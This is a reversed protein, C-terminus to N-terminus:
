CITSFTCATRDSRAAGEVEASLRTLDKELRERALEVAREDADRAVTLPAGGVYYVRTFPAPLIFRDWSAFGHGHRPACAVPFLRAGTVQALRIAGVKARQRPGRPGDAAIALDYGERYAELMERASAVGGRTASGRAARIGYGRTARAIIEGDSHRSVQICIGAGHGRYGAQIMGLQAHWFAMLVRENKAFAELLEQSDDGVVVPRLTRQILGYLLGAAFGLVAVRIQAARGRESM